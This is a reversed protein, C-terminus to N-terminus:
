HVFEIFSRPLTRLVQVQPSLSSFSNQKTEYVAEKLSVSEYIM